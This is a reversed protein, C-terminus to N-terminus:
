FVNYSIIKRLGKSSLSDVRVAIAKMVETAATTMATAFKFCDHVILMQVNFSM